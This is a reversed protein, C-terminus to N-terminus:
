CCGPPACQPTFLTEYDVRPFVELHSDVGANFVDIGRANLLTRAHAYARNQDKLFPVGVLDGIKHYDESFHRGAALLHINNQTLKIKGPPFMETLKGYHHDIGILHIPRCGLHCALQLGIYTITAGLFVIHPFDFSFQPGRDWYGSGGHRVNMFLTDHDHRLAHAVHLAAIKTTGSVRSIEGGMAEAM